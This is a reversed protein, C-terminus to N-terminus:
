RMRADLSLRGPGAVFLSLMGGAIAINKMLQITQGMDGPKFHFLLGAALTFGALALAAWRTQWGVILAIAAAIEFIIALPLLEGPLGGSRMYGASGAYNTIKGIGSWLFIAALFLRSVLLVADDYRHM